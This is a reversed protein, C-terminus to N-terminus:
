KLVIKIKHLLEAPSKVPYEIKELIEEMKKGKIVAGSLRALLQEKEAPFDLGRIKALVHVAWDIDLVEAEEKL